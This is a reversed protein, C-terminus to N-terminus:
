YKGIYIKKSLREKLNKQYKLAQNEGDNLKIVDCKPFEILM